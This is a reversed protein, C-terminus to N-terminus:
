PQVEVRTLCDHIWDALCYVMLVTAPRDIGDELVTWILMPIIGFLIFLAFIRSTLNKMKKMKRPHSRPFYLAM